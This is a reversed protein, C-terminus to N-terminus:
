TYHGEKCIRGVSGRPKMCVVDRTHNDAMPKFHSFRSRQFWLVWLKYTKYAAIDYNTICVDQWEHGQPSLHGREGPDNTGM